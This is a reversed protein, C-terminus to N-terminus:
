ARDLATRAILPVFRVRRSRGRSWEDEGTRTICLLSQVSEGGVPVVLRGGIALQQRLPEPV